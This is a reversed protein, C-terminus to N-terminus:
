CKAVMLWHFARWPWRPVVGVLVRCDWLDTTPMMCGVVLVGLSPTVSRCWVLGGLDTAPMMCGVVLVRCGMGWWARVPVRFVGTVM